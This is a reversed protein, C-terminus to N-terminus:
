SLFFNFLSKLNGSITLRKGDETPPCGTEPNEIILEVDHFFFFYHERTQPLFFFPHHMMSAGKNPVFLLMISGQKHGGELM